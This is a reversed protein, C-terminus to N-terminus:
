HGAVCSEFSERWPDASPGLGRGILVVKCQLPQTREEDREIPEADRIEFVDRVAQIIRSTGDNLILIGKLRHIEFNNPYLESSTSKAPAPYTSEWLVSRLWADVDDVKDAPIPPTLIATTSIAQHHNSHSFSL